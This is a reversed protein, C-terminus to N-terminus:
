LNVLHSIKVHQLFAEFILLSPFFHLM